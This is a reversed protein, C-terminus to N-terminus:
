KGALQQRIRQEARSFQEGTVELGLMEVKVRADRLGNRSALDYWVLAEVLDQEVVLGTESM